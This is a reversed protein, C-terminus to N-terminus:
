GITRLNPLSRIKADVTLLPLNLHLATAAIMRDIPDGVPKRPFSGALTAIDRTISITEWLRGSIDCHPTLLNTFNPLIRSRNQLEILELWTPAAIGITNQSAIAQDLFLRGAKSLKSDGCMYWVVIHTDAIALVM